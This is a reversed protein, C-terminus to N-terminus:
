LCVGAIAFEILAVTRVLGDSVFGVFGMGHGQAVVLSDTPELPHFVTGVCVYMYIARGPRDMTYVAVSRPDAQGRASDGLNGEKKKKKKGRNEVLWFPAKWWTTLFDRFKCYFFNEGFFPVFRYIKAQPACPRFDATGPCAATIGVCVHRVRVWLDVQQPESAHGAASRYVRYSRDQRATPQPAVSRQRRARAWRLAREDTAAVTSSTCAGSSGACTARPAVMLHQLLRPLRCGQGILVRRRM